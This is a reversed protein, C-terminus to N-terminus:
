LNSLREFLEKEKIDINGDAIMIFEAVALIADKTEKSLKKFEKILETDIKNKIEEESLGLMEPIKTAGGGIKGDASAMAYVTLLAIEKPNM